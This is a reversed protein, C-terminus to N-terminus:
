RPKIQEERLALQEPQRDPRGIHEPNERGTDILYRKHTILGSPQEHTVVGHILGPVWRGKANLYFIKDGAQYHNV